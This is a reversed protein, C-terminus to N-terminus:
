DDYPTNRTEHKSENSRKETEPEVRQAAMVRGFFFFLSYLLLFLLLFLVDLAKSVSRGAYALSILVWEAGKKKRKMRDQAKWDPMCGCSHRDRIGSSSRVRSFPRSLATDLPRAQGPSMQQTGAGTSGDGTPRSACSAVPKGRSNM